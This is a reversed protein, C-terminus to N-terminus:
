GQGPRLQWWGQTIPRRGRTERVGAVHTGLGVVGFFVHPVSVGTGARERVRAWGKVVSVVNEFRGKDTLRPQHCGSDWTAASLCGRWLAVCM